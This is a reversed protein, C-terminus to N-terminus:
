GICVSDLSNNTESTEQIEMGADVTVSYSCDNACEPPREVSDILYSFGKPLPPTPVDIVRPGFAFRTISAPADDAGVNAVVVEFCGGAGEQRPLLDTPQRGNIGLIDVKHRVAHAPGGSDDRLVSSVRYRLTGTPADPEKEYSINELWVGIDLVHEDDCPYSLQWGNLVPVAYDFPLGTIEIDQSQVGPPFPQGICGDGFGLDEDPLLTFSPRVMAIDDGAILAWKSLLTAGDAIDNDSFLGSAEWSLFAPDFRSADAVGPASGLAGYIRGQQLFFEPADMDVGAQLLHRDGSSDPAQLFFGTPLVAVTERGRLASPIQVFTPVLKLADPSSGSSVPGNFYFDNHDVAADILGSNWAVVTYTYCFAYDDSFSDDALLGRAQWTLTGGSLAIERLEVEIRRVHEDGSLYLLRWGNLFVTASDAYAPIPFSNPVFASGDDSFECDEDDFVVITGPDELLFSEARGEPPELITPTSCAALLVTAFVATVPAVAVIRRHCGGPQRGSWARFWTRLAVM